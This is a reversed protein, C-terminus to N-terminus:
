SRRRTRTAGPPRPRLGEFRLELARRLLRLQGEPGLRADRLGAVLATFYDAWFSLAGDAPSVDRRIEGRQRAAAFLQSVRGLFEQAQTTLAAAGPGDLFTATEVLTRSLRPRRAYFRYLAASLHLLQAPLEAGPLTAFAQEVVRGVDTEFAAVLLAPKDPFHAFITGPAVGARAALERMTAQEYGREEFLDYAADLLRRRTSAKQAARASGGAGARGNFTNM